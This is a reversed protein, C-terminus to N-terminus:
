SHAFAGSRLLGPLILDLRAGPYASTVAMTAEGLTAGSAVADLIALSAGDGPVVHVRGAVRVV